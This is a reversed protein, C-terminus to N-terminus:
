STKVELHAVGNIELNMQASQEPEYNTIILENIHGRKTADCNIMRTARVNNTYFQPEPYHDEFFNDEVDENKPDSNSLMLRIDPFEVQLAKILNALGIQAQENFDFKSYATFNATKSIPRYPPDFYVFAKGKIKSKLDTFSLKEVEVGQLLEAVKELNARDFISPNKYRGFPVNFEGRKNVRFLGNFCTKNLFILQAARLSWTAEDYTDFDTPRTENFTSRMEYFYNQRGDADLNAYREVYLSLGDILKDISNQLVKYALILEENIDYLHAKGLKGEYKQALYFFVAGGGVFPEYYHEFGGNRLEQPFYDEFQDLLQSKGGAWKLFPKAYAQPIVAM